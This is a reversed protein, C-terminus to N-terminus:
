ELGAMRLIRRALGIGLEKKPHPVTIVERQDPHKLQHHSASASSAGDPPTFGHSFM